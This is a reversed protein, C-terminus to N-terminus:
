RGLELRSGAYELFAAVAPTPRRGAPWVLAPAWVPEPELGVVAIEPGPGAAVSRPLVAAALGASAITRATGYEGAEFRAHAHAGAAALAALVTERIASGPRYLVLDVGDLAAVPLPGPGAALPSGPAVALVLPETGLPRWALGAEGVPPLAAVTATDLRGDALGAVMAATDMESLEVEVEPYEACFGALVTVLRAALGRATGIRVRGRLGRGWALMEEEVAAVDSLVRDAHRLLAEGAPTLRVRHHDRVFLAVGLQRELRRIQQSLAPQAIRLAEAARTFHLERAVAQFCELQRLTLM